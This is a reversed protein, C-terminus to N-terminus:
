SPLLEALRHLPLPEQRQTITRPQLEYGDLALLVETTLKQVSRWAALSAFYAEREEFSEAFARATQRAKGLMHPLHGGRPQEAFLDSLRLHNQFVPGATFAIDAAAIEEPDDNFGSRLGYLPVCGVLNDTLQESVRQATLLDIFPSIILDSLRLAETHRIDLHAPTDILVFNRRVKRHESAAEVARRVFFPTQGWWADCNRPTVGAPRLTQVWRTLTTKPLLGKLVEQTADLVLVSHGTALLGSTLAMLATTRGAGGKPSLFTITKTQM